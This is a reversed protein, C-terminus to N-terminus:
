QIEYFCCSFYSASLHTYLQNNFQTYKSQQKPRKVKAVRRHFPGFSMIGHEESLNQYNIGILGFLFSDLSPLKPLGHSAVQHL